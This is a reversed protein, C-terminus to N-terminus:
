FLEVFFSLHKSVTSDLLKFLYAYQRAINRIHFLIDYFCQAPQLRKIEDLTFYLPTGFQNPLVNLYAKWKLESEDAKAETSTFVANLHILFVALAVHPMIFLLKDNLILERLKSNLADHATLISYHNM